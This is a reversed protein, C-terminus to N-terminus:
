CARTSPTLIRARSPVVSFSTGCPQSSLHKGNKKALRLTEVDVARTFDEIVTTLEGDMEEIEKNKSYIIGDMTREAVM